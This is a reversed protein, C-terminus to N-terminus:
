RYANWDTAFRTPLVPDNPLPRLLESKTPVLPIFDFVKLEDPFTRGIRGRKTWWSISRRWSEMSEKLSRDIPSTLPARLSFDSGSFCSKEGVRDYLLSSVRDEKVVMAEDPAEVTVYGVGASVWWFECSLMSIEETYRPEVYLSDGSEGATGV